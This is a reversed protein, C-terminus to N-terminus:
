RVRLLWELQTELYGDAFSPWGAAHGHGGKRIGHGAAFLEVTYSTNGAQDLSSQWAAVSEKTPQNMDHEGFMLLLPTSIEKIDEAPNYTAVWEWNKRNGPSPVVSRLNLASYWTQDKVVDIASLLEERGTGSKLYGFYKDLLERAEQM